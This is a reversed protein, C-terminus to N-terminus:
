EQSLGLNRGAERVAAGGQANLVAELINMQYRTEEPPPSITSTGGRERM